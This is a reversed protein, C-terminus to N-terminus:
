PRNARALVAHMLVNCRASRMLSDWLRPGDVSLVNSANM